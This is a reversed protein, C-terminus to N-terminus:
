AAEIRVLHFLIEDGSAAALRRLLDVVRRGGARARRSRGRLMRARGEVLALLLEAAIEHFEAAPLARMAIGGVLVQKLFVAVANRHALVLPVVAMEPADGIGLMEGHALIAADHVQRMECM